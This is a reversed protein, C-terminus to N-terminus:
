NIEGLSDKEKKKMDEDHPHNDECTLDVGQKKEERKQQKLFRNLRIM